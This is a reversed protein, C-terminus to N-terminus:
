YDYGVRGSKAKKKKSGGEKYTLTAQKLVKINSLWQAVRDIRAKDEYLKNKPGYTYVKEGLIARALSYYNVRREGAEDMDYVQKTYTFVRSQPVERLMWSARPDVTSRGTAADKEYGLAKQMWEPSGDWEKGADYSSRKGHAAVIQGQRFTDFNMLGEALATWGLPGRGLIRSPEDTPEGSVWPNAVSAAHGLDKWVGILEEQVLGYGTKGEVRREGTAPDIKVNFRALRNSLWDPYDAPDVGDDRAMMVFPRVQQGWRAPNTKIAEYNAGLAHKTWTYFPIARRIIRREFMTLNSYDYLYKKVVQSATSLNGTTKAVQTFLMARIPITTALEGARFTDQMFIANKKNVGAVADKTVSLGKAKAMGFLAGGTEKLIEESIQTNFIGRKMMEHYFEEVTYEVGNDLKIVQEALSKTSPKVGFAKGIATDEVARGAAVFAKRHHKAAGTFTALGAGFTAGGAAGPLIGSAAGGLAGGVTQAATDVFGEGEFFGAVGGAVAGVEAGLVAGSTSAAGIVRGVSVSERQLGYTMIKSYDNWHGPHFLGLGARLHALGVDTTGNRKHFDTFMAMVRSKFYAQTWDYARMLGAIKGNFMGYLPTNIDDIMKAISEPLYYEAYRFAEITEGAATINPGVTGPTREIDVIKGDRMIPQEYGGQPGHGARVDPRQKPPIPKTGTALGKAASEPPVANDAEWKRVRKEASRAAKSAAKDAPSRLAKDQAKTWKVIRDRYQASSLAKNKKATTEDIKTSVEKIKSDIAKADGSKAIFDDKAKTADDLASKANQWAIPHSKKSSKRLRAKAGKEVKVLGSLQKGKVKWGELAARQIKGADSVSKASERAATLAEEAKPLVEGANTTVLSPRKGPVEPIKIRVLKEGLMAGMKDAYKQPTKEFVHFGLFSELADAEYASLDDLTKKNFMVETLESTAEAPVNGKKLLARVTNLVQRPPKLDDSYDGMMKRVQKAKIITEERLAPVLKVEDVKNLGEILKKIEAPEGGIRRSAWSVGKTGRVHPKFINALEPVVQTLPGVERRLRKDFTSLIKKHVGLPIDDFRKLGLANAVDVMAPTPTVGKKGFASNSDLLAELYENANVKFKESTDSTIKRTVDVNPNLKGSYNALNDTPIFSRNGMTKMWGGSGGRTATDYSMWKLLDRNSKSAGQAFGWKTLDIEERVWFQRLDSLTYANSQRSQMLRSIEKPVGAKAAEVLKAGFGHQTQIDLLWKKQALMELSMRKRRFLIEAVDTLVADEGWFAKLEDISAIRRHLSFQSLKDDWQNTLSAGRKTLVEKYAAAKTTNGNFFHTVYGGLTENLINYKQEEEAIDDFVLKAQKAAAVLKPDYEVKATKGANRAKAQGEAELIETITAREATSYKGFSSKISREWAVASAKHSDRITQYALKAAPDMNAIHVWNWDVNHTLGYKVGGLEGSLVAKGTWGALGFAHLGREKRLFSATEQFMASPPPYRGLDLPTAKGGWFLDNVAKHAKEVSGKFMNEIRSKHGKYVKPAIEHYREIMAIPVQEELFQETAKSEFKNVANGAENATGAALKEANERFLIEATEKRMVESWANTKLTVGGPSSMAEVIEDVTKPAKSGLGVAEAAPRAAVAVPTTVGKMASKAAGKGVNAVKMARGVLGIGTYTYPDLAVDLALAGWAAATADKGVLDYEIGFVDGFMTRNQYARTYDSGSFAFPNWRTTDYWPLQDENYDGQEKRHHYTERAIAETRAESWSAMAYNAHALADVMPMMITHDTGHPNLQLISEVVNRDPKSYMGDFQERTMKGSLVAQRAAEWHQAQRRDAKRDGTRLYGPLDEAEHSQLGSYMNNHEENFLPTSSPSEYWNGEDDYPM